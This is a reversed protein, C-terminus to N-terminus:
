LRKTLQAFEGQDFIIESEGERLRGGRAGEDEEGQCSKHWGKGVAVATLKM